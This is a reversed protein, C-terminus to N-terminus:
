AQSLCWGRVKGLELKPLCHPFHVWNEEQSDSCWRLCGVAMQCATNMRKEWASLLELSWGAAAEKQENVRLMGPCLLGLWCIWLEHQVGVSSAKGWRLLATSGGLRLFIRLSVVASLVAIGAAYM